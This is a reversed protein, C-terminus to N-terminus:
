SKLSKEKTSTPEMEENKPELQQQQITQTRICDDDTFIAVAIVSSLIKSPSSSSEEIVVSSSVLPARM